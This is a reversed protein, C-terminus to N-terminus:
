FRRLDEGKGKRELYDVMSNAVRNFVADQMDEKSFAASNEQRINMKEAMDVADLTAGLFSFSYKGSAEKTKILEQIQALSFFRSVNEYGDTLIVIIATDGENELLQDVRNISLGIGDLLATGGSPQYNIQNVSPLQDVPLNAFRIDVENSFVTLGVRIDQDPFEQAIAKIKKNQSELGSLTADVCDCMSGSQDLVFHYITKQKNM